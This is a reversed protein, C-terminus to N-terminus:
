HIEELIRRNLPENLIPRSFSTASWFSNTSSPMIIFYIIIYLNSQRVFLFLFFFLFFHLRSLLSTNSLNNICVSVSVSVTFLCLFLFNIFFHYTIVTHFLIVSFKDETHTEWRFGAVVWDSEWWLNVICGKKYQFRVRCSCLARSFFPYSILTEIMCLSIFYVLCTITPLSVM